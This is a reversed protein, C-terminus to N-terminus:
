LSGCYEELGRGKRREAELRVLKDVGDVGLWCLMLPDLFGCHVAEGARDETAKYKRDPNCHSDDNADVKSSVGRPILM